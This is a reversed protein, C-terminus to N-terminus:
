LWPKIVANRKGTDEGSVLLTSYDELSLVEGLADYTKMDKYVYVEPIVYRASMAFRSDNESLNPFSGHLCKSTFIFFQGAKVDMTVAKSEDPRWNKDVKLHEWSYGFFGSEDKHAVSSKDFVFDKSEDFYWNEKHSGPMFKMCGNEITADTMAIWVTVVWYKDSEEIAAPPLLKPQGEFEFFRRAQHWETGTDGPYKPFWETRWCLVDPGMISAVKDVIQPSCVIQQISKLDLHRDYNLRSNKYVCNERYLLERRIRQNWLELAEDRGFLTFPGIFGNQDFQKTQEETLAYISKTQM